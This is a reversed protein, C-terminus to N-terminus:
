NSRARKQVADFEPAKWPSTPPTAPVPAPVFTTMVAAPPSPAAPSAGSEATPRQTTPKAPSLTTAPTGATQNLTARTFGDVYSRLSVNEFQVRAIQASCRNDVEAIGESLTQYSAKTISQDAPRVLATIAGAVGTIAVILATLSRISAKPKHRRGDHETHDDNAPEPQVPQVM